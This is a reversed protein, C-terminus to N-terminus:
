GEFLVDLVNQLSDDDAHLSIEKRDDIIRSSYSFSLGTQEEILDLVERLPLDNAHLTVTGPQQGGVLTFFGQMLLLFVVIKGTTGWM